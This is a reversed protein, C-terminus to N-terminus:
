SLYIDTNIKYSYAYTFHVHTFSIHKLQPLTQVEDKHIHKGRTRQSITQTPTHTHASLPSLVRSDIYHVRETVRASALSSPYFPLLLIGQKEKM